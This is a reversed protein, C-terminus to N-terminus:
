YRDQPPDPIHAKHDHRAPHGCLRCFREKASMPDPPVLGAKMIDPVEEKLRGTEETAQRRYEMVDAVSTIVGPMDCAGLPKFARLERIESTLADLQKTLACVGFGLGAVLIFTSIAFFEAM